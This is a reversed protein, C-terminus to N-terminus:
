RGRPGPWLRRAVRGLVLGVALGGVVDSAHHIRVYIRSSAVALGLAYYVPAHRRGQGLLVAATMASSAHGSPFSTTIPIRLNHPRPTDVVPRERKILNKVIGNVVVSEAGMTVALRAFEETNDNNRLARAAGILLWVLGFDGLETVSYFVRDAVPHGRLRDVADDVARDFRRVPAFGDLFGEAAISDTPEDKAPPTGNPSPAETTM